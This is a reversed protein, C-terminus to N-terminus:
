IVKYFVEMEERGEEEKIWARFSVAKQQLVFHARLFIPSIVWNRRNKLSVLKVSMLM